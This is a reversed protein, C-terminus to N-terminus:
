VRGVKNNNTAIVHRSYVCVNQRQVYKASIDLFVHVFHFGNKDCHM